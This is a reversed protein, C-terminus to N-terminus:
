TRKGELLLKRTAMVADHAASTLLADADAQAFLRECPSDKSYRYRVGLESKARPHGDVEVVRVIKRPKEDILDYWAVLDSGVSHVGPIILGTSADHDDLAFMLRQQPTEGITLLGTQGDYPGSVLECPIERSM